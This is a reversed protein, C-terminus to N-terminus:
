GVVIVRANLLEFLRGATAVDFRGQLVYLTTTAPVESFAGSASGDVVTSFNLPTVIVSSDSARVLRIQGVDGDVSVSGEARLSLAVGAPWETPDFRWGGLRYWPGGEGSPITTHTALTVERRVPGAGGGGGGGGPSVLPGGGNPDLGSM